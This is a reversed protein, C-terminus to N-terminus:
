QSIRRLAEYRSTYAHLEAFKKNKMQRISAFKFDLADIAVIMFVTYVFYLLAVYIFYEYPTNSVIMVMGPMQLLVLGVKIM